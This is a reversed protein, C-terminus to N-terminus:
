VYIHWQTLNRWIRYRFKIQKGGRRSLRKKINYIQLEDFRFFTGWSHIWWEWFLRGRFCISLFGPLYRRFVNFLCYFWFGRFISDLLRRWAGQYLFYGSKEGGAAAEPEIHQGLYRTHISTGKMRISVLAYKRWEMKGSHLPLSFHHLWSPIGMGPSCYFPRDGM